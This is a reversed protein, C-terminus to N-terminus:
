EKPIHARSPLELDSLKREIHPRYLGEGLRECIALAASYQARALDPESRAMYFQGYVYRAKAEAYPYRMARSYALAEELTAEAVAHHGQRIAVMAQVRLADVLAFNLHAARARELGHTLHEQAREHEGCEMDAWALTPLLLVAFTERHPEQDLLPLLREQAQAARSSLLDWEALANQAFRQPLLDGIHQAVRASQELHEPGEELKGMAVEILGLVCLVYPVAIANDMHRIASHVEGMSRHALEWEGTCWRMMAHNCGALGLIMHDGLRLAADLAREAAQRDDGFRGQVRYVLSELCSALCLNSLDDQEQAQWIAERIVQLGEGVEGLLALARGQAQGAQILLHSDGAERAFETVNRAIAACESYSGRSYYLDALASQVLAVGYRYAREEFLRLVPQLRALGEEPQGMAMHTWGIQASAWALRELASSLQYARAAQEMLALGEEHRGMVGLVMGLKLRVHAADESRRAVEMRELLDRYCSEAAAHAYATEAKEGARELYSIAKEHDGAGAFHFALQNVPLEGAVEELAAAVRRHLHARRAASLDALVVDRILDHACSYGDLGVEELLGAHSATELAALLTAEDTPSNSARLLLSRSAERGVIAAVCLVDRAASPLAAVRVRIGQAVEWPVGTVRLEAPGDEHRGRHAAVVSDLGELQIAQAYSVVYFPVGGARGLVRELVAASEMDRQGPAGEGPNARESTSVDESAAEGALVTGQRNGFTLVVQLLAAADKSGLRGLQQQTALDEHALDALLMALPDEPKVETARYAGLLRLGTEPASRVLAAFLDLADAGAWQLDDLVLLTGTPGSLNELFRGVAAIILRREQDPPLASRPPTVLGSEALEPLLRVLWSCGELTDRLRAAPARRIFTELAGLVPQYPEQGGRRHCRGILATWGGAEANMAAEALLRSKGIGPEGTLLLLAPSWTAGSSLHRSLRSLERSRGVLPPLWGSSNARLLEAPSSLRLASDGQAGVQADHRGRAAAEFTAREAPTLGLADALLTITDKRPTRSVGRELASVNNASLGAREALDAQTLGTARRYRKLLAAFTTLHVTAM